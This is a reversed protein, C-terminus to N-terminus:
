KYKSQYVQNATNHKKTFLLGGWAARWKNYVRMPVKKIGWSAQMGPYSEINPEKKLYQWMEKDLEVDVLDPLPMLSAGEVQVARHGTQCFGDEDFAERSSHPRGYYREFTGAGKVRLM